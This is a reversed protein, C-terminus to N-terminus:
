IHKNSWQRLPAIALFRTLPLRLNGNGNSLRRWSSISGRIETVIIPIIRNLKRQM